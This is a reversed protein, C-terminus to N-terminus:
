KAQLGKYGREEEEEEIITIILKSVDVFECLLHCPNWRTATLNM